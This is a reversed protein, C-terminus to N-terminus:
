NTSRIFLFYATVWTGLIMLPLAVWGQWSFLSTEVLGNGISCGGALSAGVGMLAGGYVSNIADKATPVRLRFENSFKAAIFGGIFIGLILLTGWNVFKSEGTTIYQLAQVSPGTVGLGGNRGTQVSTVWALIAILGILLATIFPHWRKEFLLHALGTKKAPLSIPKGSKQNFRYVLYSTVLVLIGALVWPSLGLSGYLTTQEVQIGRLSNTVEKLPGVRFLASFIAYVVFAIWSGILGEGARYLSGASCGGALVIGVGFIFAGILTALWAFNKVKPALIRMEQLSLLGVTQVCIVILFAVFMKSSKTLYMDRFAGTICFRGRQMVFGLLIGCFLGLIM